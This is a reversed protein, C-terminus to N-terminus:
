AAASADGSADVDTELMTELDSGGAPLPSAEIYKIELTFNKYLVFYATLVFGEGVYSTTQLVRRADGDFPHSRLFPDWKLDRKLAALHVRLSDHPIDDCASLSQAYESGEKITWPRQM